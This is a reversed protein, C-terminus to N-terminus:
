PTMDEQKRLSLTEQREYGFDEIRFTVDRAAIQVVQMRGLQDGVHLKYRKGSDKERLVAVSNDAAAVDLYVGVWGRTGVYPPRFYRTPDEAVLAEQAGDPAAAWFAERDDHHHDAYTVFSKRGGAFWTPEGHSLREETAPFALCLRRVRTLPTPPM